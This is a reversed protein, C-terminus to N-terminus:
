KKRFFSILKEWWSKKFGLSQPATDKSVFRESIVKIRQVEKEIIPGEYEGSHAKSGQYSPQKADLHLNVATQNPSQEIYIHFRPYFRGSDLSRVYSIEGNHPNIIKAYGCARLFNKALTNLKGLYIKM